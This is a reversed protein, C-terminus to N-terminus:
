HNNTHWGDLKYIDGLFNAVSLTIKGRWTLFLRSGKHSIIGRDMQETIRMKIGLANLREPSSVGSLDISQGNELVLGKNVWSLVFFSRSRDINLISNTAALFIVVVLIITLYLFHVSKSYDHKLRIIRKPLIPLYLYIILTVLSSFLIQEFLLSEWFRLVRLLFLITMFTALILLFYLSVRAFKRFFQM